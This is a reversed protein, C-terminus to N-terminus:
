WEFMFALNKNRDFSSLSLAERHSYGPEKDLSFCSRFALPFEADQLFCYKDVLNNELAFFNLLHFSQGCTFSRFAMTVITPFM